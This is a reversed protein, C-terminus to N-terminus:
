LYGTVWVGVTGLELACAVEELLALSGPATSSGGRPQSLVADCRPGPSIMLADITPEPSSITVGFTPAASPKEISQNMMKPQMTLTNTWISSARKAITSRTVVSSASLETGPGRSRTDHSSQNQSKM